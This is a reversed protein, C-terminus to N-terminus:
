LQYNGKNWICTNNIDKECGKNRLHGSAAAMQWILPNHGVVRFEMNNLYSSLHASCLLQMGVLDLETIGSIDVIVNRTSKFAALLEKLLSDVTLITVTGVFRITSPLTADTAAEFEIHSDDM